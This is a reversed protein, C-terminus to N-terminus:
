GKRHLAAALRQKRFLQEEQDSREIGDHGALLADPANMVLQNVQQNM